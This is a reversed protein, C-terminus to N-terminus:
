VNSVCYNFLCTIFLIEGRAKIKRFIFYYFILFITLGGIAVTILINQFSLNM